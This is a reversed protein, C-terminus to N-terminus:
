IERTEQGKVYPHHLIKEATPRCQPDVNLMRKLLDSAEQLVNEVERYEGSIVRQKFENLSCKGYAFPPRGGSLMMYFIVGMSRVDAKQADGIVENQYIEPAMFSPTGGGYRGGIISSSSYAVLKKQSVM